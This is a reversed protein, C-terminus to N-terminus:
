ASKLGYNAIHRLLTSKGVGYLKAVKEISYKERYAIAKQTTRKTLKPKRGIHKGKAKARIIGIQQKEYKVDKLFDIFLSLMYDFKYSCTSKYFPHVVNISVNKENLKNLLDFLAQLSNAVVIFKAVVLTDGSELNDLLGNKYDVNNVSTEVIMCKKYKNADLLKNQEQIPLRHTDRFYIKKM